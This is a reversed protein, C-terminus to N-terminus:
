DSKYVFWAGFALLPLPFLYLQMLPNTFPWWRTYRAGMSLAMPHAKGDVIRLGKMVGAFTGLVAEDGEEAHSVCTLGLDDYTTFFVSTTTPKDWVTGELQWLYAERDGREVFQLEGEERIDLPNDPISEGVVADGGELIQYSGGKLLVRIYTKFNEATLPSKEPSLIHLSAADSVRCFFVTKNLYSTDVAFFYASEGSYISDGKILAMDRRGRESPTLGRWGRPLKLSYGAPTQISGTPLADLAVAPKMPDMMELVDALVTNAREASESSIATLVVGTGEIAFFVLERYFPQELHTDFVEFPLRLMPGLKENEEETLEGLTYSEYEDAEDEAKLWALLDEKVAIVDPQHGTTSLRIDTFAGRNRMGVKVESSIDGTSYTWPAPLDPDSEPLHIMLDTGPVAITQAQATTLAAFLLLM